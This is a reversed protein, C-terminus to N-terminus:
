DIAISRAGVGAAFPSGAVATLVGTSADASYVSVTGSNDNAAYVLSGSPDVVVSLPFVGAAATSGFTLGGTTPTISYLAVENKGTVNAAYIFRGTPDVAISEPSTTTSLPSGAVATLVGNTSDISYLSLTAATENAVYAFTGTPDIAISDAGAGAGFPSGAISTLAGTTQDISLVTVSAGTFNAVYLFNGNPDTKLSLPEGGVAFPSGTVATATGGSLTFASVTNDSLNAVFLFRAAPDVALGSPGNGTTILTNSGTLEGTTYDISYIVVNNSTNNAVYLYAGNPDVAVAVPATGGSTYPSGAIPTLLGSSDIAFASITNAGENAVYAFRGAQTCHVIVNTIAAKDITGSGNHVTCTQAPGGPQTSVTVSYEDKNKVGSSFTFSGNATVSLADGGNDELVLGSGVLGTVTGGVAYKADLNCSAVGLAAAFLTVCAVIRM